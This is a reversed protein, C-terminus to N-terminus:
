LLDNWISGYFIVFWSFVKVGIFIVIIIIVFIFYEWIDVDIGVIFIYYVWVIFGLFGILIMVWVM